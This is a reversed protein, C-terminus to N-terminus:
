RKVATDCGGRSGYQATAWIAKGVSKRWNNYHVHESSRGAAYLGKLTQGATM